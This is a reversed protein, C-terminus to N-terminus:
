MLHTCDKSWRAQYKAGMDCALDRINGRRPNEFGSMVFVVHSMIKDYPLTKPYIKRRDTSFANLDQDRDQRRKGPGIDNVYSVLETDSDSGFLTADIDIVLSESENVKPSNRQSTFDTSSSDLISFGHAILGHGKNSVDGLIRADSSEGLGGHRAPDPLSTTKHSSTASSSLHLSDISSRRSSTAIEDENAHIKRPPVEQSTRQDPTYASSRKLRKWFAGVAIHSASGSQRLSYGGLNITRRNALNFPM